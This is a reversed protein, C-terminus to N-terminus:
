PFSVVNFQKWPRLFRTFGENFTITEDEYIKNVKMSWRTAVNLLYTLRHFLSTFYQM